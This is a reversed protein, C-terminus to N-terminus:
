LVSEASVLCFRVFSSLWHHFLCGSHIFANMGIPPERLLYQEPNHLGTNLTM